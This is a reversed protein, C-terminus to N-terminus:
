CVGEGLKSQVKTFRPLCDCDGSDFEVSISSRPWDYQIWDQVSPTSHWNELRQISSDGLFLGAFAASCTSAALLSHKILMRESKRRLFAFLSMTDGQHRWLPCIGAMHGQVADWALACHWLFPVIGGNALIHGTCPLTADDKASM